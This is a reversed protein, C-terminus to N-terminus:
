SIVFRDKVTGKLVKVPRDIEGIPILGHVAEPRPRVETKSILKRHEIDEPNWPQTWGCYSDADTCKFYSYLNADAITPYHLAPVSEKSYVFLLHSMGEQRHALGLNTVVKLIEHPTTAFEFPDDPVSESWTAWTSYSTFNVASEAATLPETNSCLKSVIEIARDTGSLRLTRESLSTIFEDATKAGGIKPAVKSIDIVPGRLTYKYCTSKYINGELEDFSLHRNDHLQDLIEEMDNKSIHFDAKLNDVIRIGLGSHSRWESLLKEINEAKGKDAVEMKQMVSIYTSVKM